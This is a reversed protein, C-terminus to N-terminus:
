PRKLSEPITRKPNGSWLSGRENVFRDSIIIWHKGALLDLKERGSLKSALMVEGTGHAGYKGNRLILAKSTTPRRGDADRKGANKAVVDKRGVAVLARSASLVPKKLPKKKLVASM